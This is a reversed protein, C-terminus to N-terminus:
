LDDGWGTMRALRLYSARNVCHHFVIGTITGDVGTSERINRSARTFSTTFIRYGNNIMSNTIIEMVQPDCELQHLGGDEANLFLRCTGNECTEKTDLLQKSVTRRAQTEHLLLSRRNMAVLTVICWTLYSCTLTLYSCTLRPICQPM